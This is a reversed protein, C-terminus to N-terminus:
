LSMDSGLNLSMKKLLIELEYKTKGRPCLIYSYDDLRNIAM